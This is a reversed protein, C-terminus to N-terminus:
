KVACGVEAYIYAGVDFVAKVATFAESAAGVAKGAVGGITKNVPVMNIAEGYPTQVLGSAVQVTGGTPIQGVANAGLNILSYKTPNSIALSTAADARGPGFALNSLASADNGLFTSVWFNNQNAHFVSALSSANKAACQNVTKTRQWFGSSNGSSRCGGRSGPLAEEIGQARASNSWANGRHRATKRQGFGLRSNEGIGEFAALPFFVRPDNCTSLMEEKAALPM